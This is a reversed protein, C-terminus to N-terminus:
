KKRYLNLGLVLDDGIKQNGESSAFVMSKGSASPSGAGNYDITITVIKTAEDVGVKINSTM